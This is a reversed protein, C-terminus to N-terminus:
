DAWSGGTFHVNGVQGFGKLAKKRQRLHQYLNRDNEEDSGCHDEQPLRNKRPHRPLGNTLGERRQQQKGLPNEHKAMPDHPKVSVDKQM